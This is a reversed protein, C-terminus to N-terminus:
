PAMRGSLSGLSSPTNRDAALMPAHVIRGVRDVLVGDGLRRALRGRGKAGLPGPPQGMEEPAHRDAEFRSVHAEDPDDGQRAEELVVVHRDQGRRQLLDALAELQALGVHRRQEHPHSETRQRGEQDQRQRIPDPSAADIEGPHDAHAERGREGPNACVGTCNTRACSIARVKMTAVIAVATTITASSSGASCRPQPM